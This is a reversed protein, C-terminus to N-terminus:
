KLPPNDFTDVLNPASWFDMLRDIQKKCFALLPKEIYYYIVCGLSLILLLILTTSFFHLHNIKLLVLCKSIIQMLPIHFLYISYSADGILLFLLPIKRKNHAAAYVILASPIGLTIERYSDHWTSENIAFIIFLFLGAILAIHQYKAPYKLVLIAILCGFLFEAIMPSLFIRLPNSEVAHYHIFFQNIYCCIVWTILAMIFLTPKRFFLIGFVLYFLIEYSLTWSVALLRDHNDTLILLFTKILVAATPIVIPSHLTYKTLILLSLYFIVAIWYLPFIRVFRRLLFESTTLTHKANVTSYYIVFGSLVFFLDVGAYGFKFFNDLYLYGFQGRIAATGHRLLVLIAAVARLFQLSGIANSKINM